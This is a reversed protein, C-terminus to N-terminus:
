FSVITKKLHNAVSNLRERKYYKRMKTLTPLVNTVAVDCSIAITCEVYYNVFDIFTLEHEHYRKTGISRKDVVNEEGSSRETVYKHLYFCVAGKTFYQKVTVLNLIRDTPFM